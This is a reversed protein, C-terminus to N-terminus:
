RRGELAFCTLFDLSQWDIKIWAGFMDCFGQFVDWNVRM